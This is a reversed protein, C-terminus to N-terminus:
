TEGAAEKEYRRERAPAAAAVQAVASGRVWKPLPDKKPLPNYGLAQGKTARTPGQIQALGSAKRLVQQAACFSPYSPVSLQLCLMHARLM